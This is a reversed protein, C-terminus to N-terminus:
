AGSLYMIAAQGLFIAVGYPIRAKLSQRLDSLVSTEPSANRRAQYFDLAAFFLAVGAGAVATLIALAGLDSLPHWLALAAFLKVDGGGMIRTAFLIFGVIFAISFSALRWHWVERLDPTFALVVIFLAIVLVPITNPIRRARLDTYAAVSLLALLLAAGIADVTM